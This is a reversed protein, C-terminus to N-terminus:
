GEVGMWEVYWNTKISDLNEIFSGDRPNVPLSGVFFSPLFVRLTFQTPTADGGIITFGEFMFEPSTEDPFVRQGVIRATYCPVSAFKAESTIVLTEVGLDIRRTSVDPHPIDWLKWNTAGKLTRGCAIYPLHEPRVNRRTAISLSELRCNKVSIRALVIKEGTAIQTVHKDIKPELNTNLGIWCFVPEERRRVVGNTSCLGSRTELEELDEIRPYHVTLDYFQPNGSGDDAVPPVTEVHPLLLIIERGQNDIAYGPSITVERDGREGHVAFGSGIGFTHLSLNHLWRMQRNFGDLTQLDEAFLRQGNFFDLREIHPVASVDNM